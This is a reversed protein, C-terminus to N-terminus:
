RCWPQASCTAQVESDCIYLYSWIRLYVMSSNWVPEMDKMMSKYIWYTCVNRSANLAYWDFGLNSDSKMRSRGQLCFGQLCNVWRAPVQTQTHSLAISVLLFYRDYTRKLNSRLIKQQTTTPLGIQFPLLTTVSSCVSSCWTFHLFICTQKWTGSFRHSWKLHTILKGMSKCLHFKGNERCRLENWWKPCGNKHSTSLLQFIFGKSM